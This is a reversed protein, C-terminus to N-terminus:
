RGALGSTVVGKLIHRQGIFFILIMPLTYIVIGSITLTTLFQGSPNKFIQGIIVGITTNNVNLYIRPTLWDGWVYIFNLIFSTAIAARSNPIFIRWYIQFPTCGDVEAADELEKPFTLFFQRFLFIHYSSGALGWLVWPWYKGTLHIKAFIMFTPIITVIAPIILMAIVFGFLSHSAKVDRYRSFGYGVMSSSIVTLTSFMTALFLTNLTHSLYTYIPNFVEAYNIYQPVAPFLVIPYTLYEINRKLSTILLWLIPTILLLAVSTLFIYIFFNNRSRAAKSKVIASSRSSAVTNM